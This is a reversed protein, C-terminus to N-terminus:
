TDGTQSKPLMVGGNESRVGLIPTGFFLFTVRSFGHVFSVCSDTYGSLACHDVNEPQEFSVIQSHHVECCLTLHMMGSHTIMPKNPSLFGVGVKSIHFVGFNLVCRSVGCISSM